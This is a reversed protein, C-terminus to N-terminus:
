LVRIDREFVEKILNNLVIMTVTGVIPMDRVHVRILEIARGEGIFLSIHNHRGPYADAPIEM